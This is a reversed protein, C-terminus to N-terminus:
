HSADLQRILVSMNRVYAEVSIGKLKADPYPSTDTEDGVHTRSFDGPAPTKSGDGKYPHSNYGLPAPWYGERTSRERDVEAARDKPADVARLLAAAAHRRRRGAAALAKAVSRRHRRRRGRCLQRRLGAVDVERFASYHGLTNAPDYDVFYRGNVVNSGERHVYLPKNTGLEIFTPHTRGAPAM